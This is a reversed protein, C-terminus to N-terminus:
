LISIKEEYDIINTAQQMLLLYHLGLILLEVELRLV